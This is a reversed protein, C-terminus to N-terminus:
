KNISHTVCAFTTVGNKRDAKYSQVSMIIDKKCGKTTCKVTMTEKPAPTGSVVKKLMNAGEAKVVVTKTAKLEAIYSNAAARVDDCEKVLAHILTDKDASKVKKLDNPVVTRPINCNGM